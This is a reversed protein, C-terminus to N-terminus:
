VQKSDDSNFPTPAPQKSDQALKQLTELRKAFKDSSEQDVSLAVANLMDAVAAQPRKMDELVLSRQHFASANPRLHIAVSFDDLAENLRGL